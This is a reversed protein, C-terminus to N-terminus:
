PFSRMAGAEDAMKGYRLLDAMSLNDGGFLIGWKWRIRSPMTNGETHTLTSMAKLSIGKRRLCANTM